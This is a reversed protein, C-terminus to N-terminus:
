RIRGDTALRAAGEPVKKQVTVERIGVIFALSWRLGLGQLPVQGILCIRVRRVLTRASSIPMERGSM